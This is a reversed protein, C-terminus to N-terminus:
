LVMTDEGPPKRRRGAASKSGGISMESSTVSRVDDDISPTVLQLPPPPPSFREEIIQVRTSAPPAPGTGFVPPAPAHPFNVPPLQPTAFHQPPSVPQQPPAPLAVPSKDAGNGGGGFGKMAATVQALIEPNSSLTQSVSPLVTSFMANSIHYAVMSSMFTFMVTYVPDIKISSGHQEHLEEFSADYDSISDLVSESFGDLRLKLFSARKSLFEVGTSVALLIRRQFKISRMIESNKRMRQYEATMQEYSSDMSLAVQPQTGSAAMRQIKHLLELKQNDLTDHDPAIFGDDPGTNMFDPARSSPRNYMPAMAPAQQTSRRIPPTSITKSILKDQNSLMEFEDDEEDEENNDGGRRGVSSGSQSSGIESMSLGDDDDERMGFANRQHRRRANMMVVGDDDDNESGSDNALQQRVPRALRVRGGGVPPKFSIRHGDAQGRINFAM